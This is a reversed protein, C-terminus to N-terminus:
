CRRSSGRRRGGSGTPATATSPGPSRDPGARPASTSTSGSAARPSAAPRAPRRTATPGTRHRVDRRRRQRLQARPRRAQGHRHRRLRRRPRRGLSWPVPRPRGPWTPWPRESTELADLGLLDRAAIRLLELRKSRALATPIPATSPWPSTSPTSSTSPASPGGRVAPGPLQQGGGGHVLVSALAVTGRTGRLWATSPEPREDVSAACSPRRRRPRRRASPPM